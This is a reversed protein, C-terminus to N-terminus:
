LVEEHTCYETGQMACDKCGYYYYCQDCTRVAPIDREIYEEWNAKPCSGDVCSTGVYGNCIKKM